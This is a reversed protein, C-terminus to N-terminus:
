ESNFRCSDVLLLTPTTRRFVGSDTKILGTKSKECRFNSKNYFICTQICTHIYTHIYTCTHIQTNTYQQYFDIKEQYIVMFNNVLYIKLLKMWFGALKSLASLGQGLIKDWGRLYITVNLIEMPERSFVKTFKM